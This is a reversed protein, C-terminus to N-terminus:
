ARKLLNAVQSAHWKDNGRRTKINRRELAAAIGRLDTVGLQMIERVHPMIQAAFEDAQEKLIPVAVANGREPHPSGLKVGRAKVAQLAATTRESIMVAEHEAVAALIHATFRNLHPNDVAVWEIGSEMFTAMRAVNRYLRDMKAVLLTAKERKCQAIAADLQPRRMNGKRTGSEVETYEGILEWDGGNLYQRVANQQAELGIGSQGQEQTSVRYYAVYKGTHRKGPNALKM